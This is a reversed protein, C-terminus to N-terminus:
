ASPREEPAMLSQELLEAIHLVQVDDGRERFGSQWQLHCGPNSTILTRAGSKVVADLRPELIARSTDPRLMSYIGASGCCSESDEIEVRKTDPVMDILERPQSRVGQGHCLHCPDDFALPGSTASDLVARLRAAHPERTLMESFDFVRASFATARAHWDSGPEFLHAYEKMHAGCGASNVVVEIPQDSDDRLAEFAEISRKALDRAGETDGNHAHLSGCCVHDATRSEIGAASLTRVTARNVRGLLEPMVCGELVAVSALKEGCAPTRRALPDRESRPPVDPLTALARGRDGLLSAALQAVGAAKALRMMTATLRLAARNPLVWRFGIHRAIRKMIGTHMTDALRGRTEAMMEGFRVGSPCVSECNRCVLCADLEERFSEDAVLHDEAVARMLRIRGRPGSSEVGM